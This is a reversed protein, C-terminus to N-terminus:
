NRREIIYRTMEILADREPSNPFESLLNEARGAFEAATQHAQNIANSSAIEKVLQVVEKEDQIFKGSMFQSYFPHQTNEQMFYLMPLTVLGQRLDGGVPKGVTSEDGVYDLVDDVIQFAMGLEYGFKRLVEIQRRDVNSIVAATHTSTEFLSATKSYIRRYYEDVSTICHNTFLQDVEGNVITMLTAAILQMVEVSNTKSAMDSASAFLFDGTLVTAAPSWKSNLTPIGRRLIAGDILDDHVLTATHLMEIATALRLLREYEANLMSGILLIIKPRIRKGGSALIHSTATKLDPHYDDLQRLMMQEVTELGKQISPLSTYSTGM